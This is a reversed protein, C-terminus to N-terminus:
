YTVKDAGEGEGQRVQLKSHCMPAIGPQSHFPESLMAWSGLSSRLIWHSKGSKMERCAHESAGM